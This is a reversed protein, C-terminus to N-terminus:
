GMFRVVRKTPAATRPTAVSADPGTSRAKEAVVRTVSSASAIDAAPAILVSEVALPPRATTSDRLPEIEAVTLGSVLTVIRALPSWHAPAGVSATFAPPTVTPVNETVAV